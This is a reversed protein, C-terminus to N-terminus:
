NSNSFMPNYGFQNKIVPNGSEIFYKFGKVVAKVYSSLRPKLYVERIIPRIWRPYKRLVIDPMFSIIISFGSVENSVRIIEWTVKAVAYKGKGILLTYGSNENWQTFVRKLKLGNYYRITDEAGVGGWKIVTNNECYPHFKLLNGPKAMVEWVKSISADIKSFFSVKFSPLDPHIKM